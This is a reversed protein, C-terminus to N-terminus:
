TKARALASYIVLCTLLIVGLWVTGLVPGGYYYSAGAAFPFLGISVILNVAALYCRRAKVGM